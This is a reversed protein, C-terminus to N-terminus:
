AVGAIQALYREDTRRLRETLVGLLRTLLEPYAAILNLFAARDLTFFVCPTLTLASASRKERDLLAMEGFFQGRDLVGLMAVEGESSEMYIQIRGALIVYMCSGPDGKRFLREGSSLTIRKGVKVLYDIQSNELSELLSVQRLANNLESYEVPGRLKDLLYPLAKGQTESASPEMRSEIVPELYDSMQHCALERHGYYRNM